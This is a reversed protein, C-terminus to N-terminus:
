KKTFNIDCCVYFNSRLLELIYRPSLNIINVIKGINLVNKLIFFLNQYSYKKESKFIKILKIGAFSELLYKNYFKSHHLSKSGLSKLTNKFFLFYVISVFGILSFIIMTSTIDAYLLLLLM